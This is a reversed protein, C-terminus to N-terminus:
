LTEIETQSAPDRGIQLGDFSQKNSAFISLLDAVESQLRDDELPEDEDEELQEPIQRSCPQEINSLRSDCSSQLQTAGEELELFTRGQDRLMADLGTLSRAMDEIEQEKKVVDRMLTRKLEEEGHLV